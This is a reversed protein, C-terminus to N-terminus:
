EVPDPWRWKYGRVSDGSRRDNVPGEWGLKRMAGAVRQGDAHQALRTVYGASVWLECDEGAAMVMAIVNGDDRVGQGRPLVVQPREATPNAVMHEIQSPLGQLRDEVTDTKERARQIEGAAEWLSPDLRLAHHYTRDDIDVVLGGAIREWYVKAEAFLQDRDRALGVLDIAKVPLPWWRRNDGVNLYQITQRDRTCNFTGIFVCIRPQREKFRGYAPRAREEQRTVFAKVQRGEAKSMNALEAIEYLWVGQTLEMQEKETKGLITSDSFYDAGGALIRIATSKGDGEPSELVLVHDYKIGHNYARAVAAALTLRGWARHLDSDDAGFYTTLWTDLREVGDWQLPDLYELLPDRWHRECTNLVADYMADKGPEYDFLRYSIRRLARTVKDSLEGEYQKLEVGSVCYRNHFSDFWFEMEDMADLAKLANIMSGKLPKNKANLEPFTLSRPQSTTPVLKLIQAATAKEEATPKKSM